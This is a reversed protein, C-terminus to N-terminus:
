VLDLFRSHGCYWLYIQVAELQGKAAKLWYTFQYMHRQLPYQEVPVLWFVLFQPWCLASCKVLKPSNVVGIKKKEREPKGTLLGTANFEVKM